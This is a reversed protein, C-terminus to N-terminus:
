QQQNRAIHNDQRINQQETWASRMDVHQKNAENNYMCTYIYIHIYIYMCVYVYAYIYIYIHIYIYICVYM